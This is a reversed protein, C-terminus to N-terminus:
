NLNSPNFIRAGHYITLVQVTDHLLVRYVVRYNGLLIERITEDGVEPVIRGSLPFM